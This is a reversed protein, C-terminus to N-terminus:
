STSPSASARGPRSRRAPRGSLDRAIQELVGVTGKRRRYGVTRAVEARPAGSRGWRPGRLPRHGVLEGLHPVM